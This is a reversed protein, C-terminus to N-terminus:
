WEGDHVGRVRFYRYVVYKTANEESFWQVSDHLYDDLLTKADEAPDAAQYARFRTLEDHELKHMFLNDDRDKLEDGEERILDTTYAMGSKQAEFRTKALKLQYDQQQRILREQRQAQASVGILHAQNRERQAADVTQQHPKLLPELYGIGVKHRWGWWRCLVRHHEVMHRELAGSAQIKNVYNNYAKLVLTDVQGETTTAAFLNKYVPTELVEEISALPVGAAIAKTYMHRLPIVSINNSVWHHDEVSGFGKPGYGGGVDTHVGPYVYEEYGNSDYGPATRITWVPFAIRFEHVAVMHVCKKVSTPIVLDDAKLHLAPLGFSAVTDFLGMFEISVTKKGFAGAKIKQDIRNAFMRAIAAGRSFGFISIRLTKRKKETDLANNLLVFAEDMRKDAGAGMGAGMITSDENDKWAKQAAKVAAESIGLALSAGPNTRTIVRAADTLIKSKAPKAPEGSKVNENFPTGVGSFYFAYQGKDKRFSSRLDKFASLAAGSPDAQLHVNGNAILFLKAPNSPKRKPMDLAVNQGTGDFFFSVWMVEECVPCADPKKKITNTITTRFRQLKEETTLELLNSANPSRLANRPQSM